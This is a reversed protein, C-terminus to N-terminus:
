RRRAGGPDAISSRLPWTLPLEEISLIAGGRGRLTAGPQVSFQPIRRPWEQLFVRLELRALHSGACQHAGGGFALHAKAQRKFDVNLADTFVREDLGAAPTLCQVMEGAKLQFGHFDTDQAVIRVVPDDGYRRLLEEVAAAALSPDERLQAHHTPHEALFAAFWTLQSAVTDLGALVLTLSMGLKQDLTLANGEIKANAVASLLDERPVQQRQELLGGLYERMDNWARHRRMTDVTEFVDAAWGAFRAHDQQPLGAIEVFMTVPMQRAFERTFECNGREIFGSILENTIERARSEYRAVTRPALLPFLFRRYRAHTEGEIELPIFPPRDFAAPITVWRSSFAAPNRLIQQCEEFGTVVWHGQNRPTYFINPLSKLVAHPDACSFMPDAIYDFDRSAAAPIHPPLATATM